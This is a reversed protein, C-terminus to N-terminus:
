LFRKWKEMLARVEERETPILGSLPPRVPGGALGVLDMAAKMVAVEYGKKRARLEYLPVVFDNMLSALTTVEGAAAHQDLLFSLRPAITAISSTYARVGIAYYGPVVDDGAGGIWALREGLRQRIMQYRRLDGQGDKWAILTPVGAALREIFAPTPNVWDRSYVLLGLPTAEGIARYYDYLGEESAGPYYPPLALIGDAGAATAAWAMSVAIPLSGGVGAIVPVKGEFVDVTAAVVREHESPDLSYMEGTGGAAVIACFPFPALHRLNKNLGVEDLTLDPNFPTVPFAIVGRFRKKLEAPTMM